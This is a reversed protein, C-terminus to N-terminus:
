FASWSLKVPGSTREAFAATVIIQNTGATGSLCQGDLMEASNEDTDVYAGASIVIKHAATVGTATVTETWEYADTTLTITAAGGLSSGSAAAITITDTGANTTLTVNSGAVLTLTDSVADAVVDAQGSVAITTFSATALDADSVAANLAAITFSGLATANSGAAATVAGTLAARQLLPTADVYTLSADIMAGVADQAQEDTYGAVGAFTLTNGADNYTITINAGAVALAAVRDDVAESFDTVDSAVHTHTDVQNAAGTTVNIWATWSTRRDFIVPRARVQYTTSKLLGGSVTAGNEQPDAQNGTFALATFGNLRGQWRVAKADVIEASVWTLELVPRQGGAVGNDVLVAAVAFGPVTQAAVTTRKSARSTQAVYDTAQTFDYDAPNIETLDVTVHSDPRDLIADVRFKKTAYGHRVSDYTVIDNPELGWFKPGFTFTHRRARRAEAMAAKM